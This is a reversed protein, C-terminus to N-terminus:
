NTILATIFANNRLYLTSTIQSAQAKMISLEVKNAVAHARLDESSSVQM